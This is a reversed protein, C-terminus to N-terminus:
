RYEGRYRSEGAGKGGMGGKTGRESSCCRAHECGRLLVNKRCVVVSKEQKEDERNRM